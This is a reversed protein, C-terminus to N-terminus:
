LVDLISLQVDTSLFLTFHQVRFCTAHHCGVGTSHCTWAVRVKVLEPTPRLLLVCQRALDQEAIFGDQFLQLLRVISRYVHPQGMYTANVSSSVLFV